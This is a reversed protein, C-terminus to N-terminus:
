FKLINRNRHFNEFIKSELWIEFYNRIKDFKRFIEIKEFLEHFKSETFNEFIEIKTLNELIKTLNEFIGIQDFNGFIM